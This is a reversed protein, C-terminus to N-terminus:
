FIVTDMKIDHEECPIDEFIQFSNCFGCLFVDPCAKKLREIYIDYFGKGHGLRKGGSTFAVGPVIVFIKKGSLEEETVQMKELSKLPEMIGFAGEELQLSIDKESGIYYFDMESTGPVVRPLATKKGLSLAKIMAPTCDAEGGSPIYSLVIDSELFEKLKLIKPCEGDSLRSKFLERVAKRLTQKDM